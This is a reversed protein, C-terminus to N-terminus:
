SEMHGRGELSLVKAKVLCDSHFGVIGNSGYVPYGSGDRIKEPLAKGYKLELIDGVRIRVWGNNDVPFVKM